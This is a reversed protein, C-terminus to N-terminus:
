RIAGNRRRPRLTLSFWGCVIMLWCLPTNGVVVNERGMPDIAQGNRPPQSCLPLTRLASTIPVHRVVPLTESPSVILRVSSFAMWSPHMASNVTPMIPVSHCTPSACSDSTGTCCVPVCGWRMTDRHHIFEQDPEPRNVYWVRLVNAAEPTSIIGLIEAILLVSPQCQRANRRIGSTVKHGIGSINLSSNSVSLAAKPSVSQSVNWCIAATNISRRRLICASAAASSPPVRIPLHISGIRSM